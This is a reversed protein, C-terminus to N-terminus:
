EGMGGPGRMMPEGGSPEMSHRRMGMGGHHRGMGPGGGNLFGIGMQTAFGIAQDMEDSQPPGMDPARRNAQRHAKSSKALVRASKRREVQSNHSSRGPSQMAQRQHSGRDERIRRNAEKTTRQRHSSTAERRKGRATEETKMQEKPIIEETKIEKETQKTEEILKVIRERLEPTKVLTYLQRDDLKTLDSCEDTVARQSPLEVAQTEAPVVVEVTERTLLEKLVVRRTFTKGEKTTVTVEIPRDSTKDKDQHELVIKGSDDTKETKTAPPPEKESLRNITITANPLPEGHDTITVTTEQVVALATGPFALAGFVALACILKRM